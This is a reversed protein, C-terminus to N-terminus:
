LIFKIIHSVYTIKAGSSGVRKAQDLRDMAKIKIQLIEIVRNHLDIQKNLDEM